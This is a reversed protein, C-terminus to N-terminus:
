QKLNPEVEVVAAVSLPLVGELAHGVPQAAVVLLLERSALNISVFALPNILRIQVLVNHM